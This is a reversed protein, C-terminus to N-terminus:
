TALKFKAFFERKTREAEERIEEASMGGQKRLRQTTLVKIVASTAKEIATPLSITLANEIYELRNSILAYCPRSTSEKAADKPNRRDNKRRQWPTDAAAGEFINHMVWGWSQKALGRTGGKKAPSKGASTPWYNTGVQKRLQQRMEADSGAYVYRTFTKGRDTLTVKWRRLPKDLKKGDKYTIWQPKEVSVSSEMKRKQKATKTGARLSKCIQIAMRRPAQESLKGLSKSLEGLAATFADISSQEVEVDVDLM